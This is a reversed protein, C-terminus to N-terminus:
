LGSHHNSAEIEEAQARQLRSATGQTLASGFDTLGHQIEPYGIVGGAANINAFPILILNALVLVKVSSVM